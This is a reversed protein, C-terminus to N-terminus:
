PTIGGPIVNLSSAFEGQECRIGLTQPVLSRPAHKGAAGGKRFRRVPISAHDGPGLEAARALYLGNLTYTIDTWPDASTNTVLLVTGGVAAETRVDAGLQNAPRGTLAIALVTVLSLLAWAGVIATQSQFYWDQSSFAALRALIGGRGVGSASSHAM